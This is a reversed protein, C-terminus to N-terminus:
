TIWDVRHLMGLPKGSHKSYPGVLADMVRSQRGELVGLVEGQARVQGWDSQGKARGCEVGTNQDTKSVATNVPGIVSSSM